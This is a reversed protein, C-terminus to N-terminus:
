HALGCEVPSSEGKECFREFVLGQYLDNVLSEFALYYQEVARAFFRALENEQRDTYYSRVLETIVVGSARGSLPGIRPVVLTRYVIV